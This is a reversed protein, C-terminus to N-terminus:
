AVHHVGDRRQARITDQAAEEGQISPREAGQASGGGVLCSAGCGNDGVAGPVAASIKRRKMTESINSHQDHGPICVKVHAPARVISDRIEVVGAKTLWGTLDDSTTMLARCDVLEVARVSSIYVSKYYTAAVSARLELTLSGCSSIKM